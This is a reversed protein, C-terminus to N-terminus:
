YRTDINNERCQWLLRNIYTTYIYRDADENINVVPTIGNNNLLKIMHMVFTKQADTPKQRLRMMHYAEYNRNYLNGLPRNHKLNYNSM